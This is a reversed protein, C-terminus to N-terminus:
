LEPIRLYDLFRSTSVSIKKLCDDEEDQIEYFLIVFFKFFLKTGTLYSGM